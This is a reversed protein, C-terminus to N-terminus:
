VGHRYQKIQKYVLDHLEHYTTAAHNVRSRVAELNNLESVVYELPERNLQGLIDNCYVRMVYHRSLESAKTLQSAHSDLRDFLALLRDKLTM